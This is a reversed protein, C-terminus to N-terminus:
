AINKSLKVVSFPVALFDQYKSTDLLGILIKKTINSGQPHFLYAIMVRPCYLSCRGEVETGNM